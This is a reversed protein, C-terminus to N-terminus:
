RVRPVVPLQRVAQRVGGALAEVNGRGGEDRQVADGGEAVTRLQVLLVQGGALVQKVHAGGAVRGLARQHLKRLLNAVHALVAGRAGLHEAHREVGDVLELQRHVRLRAVRTQQEHHLARGLSDDGTARMHRLRALRLGHGLLHARAELRRVVVHAALALSHEAERILVHVCGRKRRREVELLQRALAVCLAGEVEGDVIQHERAQERQDVRRALAHGHGDGLAAGRADLDDHHRAVM